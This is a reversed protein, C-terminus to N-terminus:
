CLARDKRSKTGEPMGILCFYYLVGNNSTKGTNKENIGTKDQPEGTIIVVSFTSGDMIGRDEQTLTEVERYFSYLPTHIAGCLFTDYIFVIWLLM